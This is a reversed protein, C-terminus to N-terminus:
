RKRKGEKERVIQLIAGNKVERLGLIHLLEFYFPKNLANSDTMKKLM